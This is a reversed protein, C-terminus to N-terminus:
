TRVSSAPPALWALGLGPSPPVSRMRGAAEGDVQWGADVLTWTSHIDGNVVGQVDFKEMQNDCESSKAGISNRRAARAIDQGRGAAAGGAM